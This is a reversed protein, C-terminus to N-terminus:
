PVTHSVLEMRVQPNGPSKPWNERSYRAVGRAEPAFWVTTTSADSHGSSLNKWRGEGVIKFTDFTGAKITIKETGVVKYDFTNEVLGGRQNPTTTKCSWTRGVALPFSVRCMPIADNGVNVVWDLQANLADPAKAMTSTQEKPAITYGDSTRSAVEFSFSGDAFPGDHVQYTWSEGVVLQPAAALEQATTSGIAALQLAAFLMSRFPITM